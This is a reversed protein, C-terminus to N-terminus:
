NIEKMLLDELKYKEYKEKDQNLIEILENKNQIQLWIAPDLHFIEGLKIALDPNIKRRGKFIASLNSEQYDIYEAFTKKSPGENIEADDFL